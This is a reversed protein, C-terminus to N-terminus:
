GNGIEESVKEYLENLLSKEALDLAEALKPNERGAHTIIKKITEVAAQLEAMERQNKKAM